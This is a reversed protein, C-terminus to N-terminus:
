EVSYVDSSISRDYVDQLVPSYPGYPSGLKDGLEEMNRTETHETRQERATCGAISFVMLLLCAVAVRKKYM